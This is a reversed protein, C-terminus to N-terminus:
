DKKNLKKEKYIDLILKALSMADAKIRALYEEESQFIIGNIIKPFEKSDINNANKQYKAERVNSMDAV